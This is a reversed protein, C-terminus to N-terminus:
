SAPFLPRIQLPYDLLNWGVSKIFNTTEVGESLPDKPDPKEFKYPHAYFRTLHGDIESYVIFGHGNGSVLPTTASANTAFALICLTAFIAPAFTLLM